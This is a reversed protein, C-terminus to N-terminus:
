NGGGHKGGNDGKDGQNEWKSPDTAEPWAGPQSPYTAADVLSDAFEDLEEALM